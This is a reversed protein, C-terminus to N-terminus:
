TRTMVFAPDCVDHVMGLFTEKIESLESPVWQSNSARLILLQSSHLSSRARISDEDDRIGLQLLSSCGDRM